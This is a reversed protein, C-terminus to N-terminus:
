EFILIERTTRGCDNCKITCINEDVYSVQGFNWIFTNGCYECVMDSTSSVKGGLQKVMCWFKQKSRRIKRARHADLLRDFIKSSGLGSIFAVSLKLVEIITETEM